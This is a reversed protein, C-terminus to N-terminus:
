RGLATSSAERTITANSKQQAYWNQFGSTRFTAIQTADPTRTEEALVKFLYVGDGQITIVDSVSGVATSFIADEKQPDLQGKEVWGVDGGDKAETGEGNDRALQGFDIGAEARAKLDALWANDGSGYAHMFQIVHWGFATKVPPLVEFQRLGSQFIAKSFAPDLASTPDEYPMKGGQDKTGTDDSQDRAIADFKTPDLQLQHYAANAQNLAAQWAPDTAALNKAGAPDHNPAFLIERVKVSTASAQSAPLYIQLVHRQLGPKSLDAVVKDTLKTTIVQAKAAARYDAVSVGAAQFKASYAQDVSAPTIETVRGIRATGDSGVVVDTPTNVQAAFVASMFGSDYGSDQPLWGLDGAQPASTAT